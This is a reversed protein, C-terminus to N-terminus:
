MEVVRAIQCFALMVHDVFDRALAPGTWVPPDQSRTFRALNVSETKLTWQMRHVVRCCTVRLRWPWSRQEPRIMAGLRRVGLGLTWRFTTHCSFLPVADSMRGM